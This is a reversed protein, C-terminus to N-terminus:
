SVKLGQLELFRTAQSIAKPFRECRPLVSGFAQVADQNPAVVFGHTGQSVFSGLFQQGFLQFGLNSVGRKTPVEAEARRAGAGIGVM